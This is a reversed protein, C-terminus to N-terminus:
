EESSVQFEAERRQLTDVEAEPRLQCLFHTLLTDKM